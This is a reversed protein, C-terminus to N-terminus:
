VTAANRMVQIMQRVQRFFCIIKHRFEASCVICISYTEDTRKYGSTMPLFDIESTLNKFM